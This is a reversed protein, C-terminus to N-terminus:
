ACSFVFVTYVRVCVVMGEIQVALAYKCQRSFIHSKLADVTLPHWCPPTNRGATSGPHSHFETPALHYSVSQPIHLLNATFRWDSLLEPEKFPILLLFM